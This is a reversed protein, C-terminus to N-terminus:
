ENLLLEAMNDLKAKIAEWGPLQRDLLQYFKDSHNHEVLHCLEHIIVYQICQAPAKILHSNLSLVGSPSCSGWQKQMPQITFEPVEDLWSISATLTKLQKKFVQEARQRYWITLLTKIHKAAPNKSYVQVRGRLFKVKEAKEHDPLASVPLVKLMHRRGLYFCNQGSVYERPLVHTQQQDITTLHELIWGARKRVAAKIDVRATGEIADVQVTGDPNIHIKVKPNGPLNSVYCVQYALKHEGYTLHYIDTAPSNVTAATM